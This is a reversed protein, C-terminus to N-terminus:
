TRSGHYSCSADARAVASFRRLIRGARRCEHTFVRHTHTTGRALSFPDPAQTTLQSPPYAPARGTHNVRPSHAIPLLVVVGPPLVIASPISSIRGCFRPVMCSARLHIPHPSHRVMRAQIHVGAPPHHKNSCSPRSQHLHSTIHTKRPHCTPFLFRRAVARDDGGRAGTLAPLASSLKLGVRANAM